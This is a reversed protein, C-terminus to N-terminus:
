KRTRSTRAPKTEATEAEKRLVGELITGEVLQGFVDAVSRGGLIALPAMTEAMREALAKDSFAQMAAILQPSVAEAKDVIAKVDAQLEEIRQALRQQAVSLELDYKAKERALEATNITDLADQQQLRGQMKRKEVEAAAQIKALNLELDKIVEDTQLTLLNQQTESEAQAIQQKIGEQQQRFNLTRQEAALQLTMQVENHQSKVLLGAITEDEITVDLVEVDYVRM